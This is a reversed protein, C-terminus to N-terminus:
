RGIEKHTEHSTEEAFGLGLFFFWQDALYASRSIKSYGAASICWRQLFFHKTSSSADNAGKFIRLSLRMM